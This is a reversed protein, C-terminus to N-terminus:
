YIGLFGLSKKSVSQYSAKLFISYPQPKSMFLSFNSYTIIFHFSFEKVWTRKALTTNKNVDPVKGARFGLSTHCLRCAHSHAQTNPLQSNAKCSNLALVLFYVVPLFVLVPQELNESLFFPLFFLAFTFGGFYSVEM